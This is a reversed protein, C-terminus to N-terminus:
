LLYSLLMYMAWLSTKYFIFSTNWQWIYFGGKCHNPYNYPYVCLSSLSVWLACVDVLMSCKDTHLFTRECHPFLPSFQDLDLDSINQACVSVQSQVYRGLKTPAPLFSLVFCYTFVWDIFECKQWKLTAVWCLLALHMVDMM